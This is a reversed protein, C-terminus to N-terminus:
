TGGFGVWRKCGHFCQCLVMEIVDKGIHNRDNSRGHGIFRRRPPNIGSPADEDGQDDNGSPKGDDLLLHFLYTFYLPAISVSPSKEQENGGEKMM